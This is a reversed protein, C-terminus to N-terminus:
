LTLNALLQSPSQVSLAGQISGDLCSLQELSWVARMPEWVLTHSQLHCQAWRSTGEQLSGSRVTGHVTDNCLVGDGTRSVEEDGEEQLEGFPLSWM